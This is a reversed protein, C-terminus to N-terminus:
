MNNVIYFYLLTRARGERWVTRATRGYVARWDITEEDSNARQQM